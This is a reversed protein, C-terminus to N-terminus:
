KECDRPKNATQMEYLVFILCVWWCSKTAKVPLAQIYACLQLTQAAFMYPYTTNFFSQMDKGVSWSM